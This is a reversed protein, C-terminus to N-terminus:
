GRTVYILDREEYDEATKVLSTINHRKDDDSMCYGAEIVTFDTNLVSNYKHPWGPIEWDVIVHDGSIRYNLLVAGSSEFRRKLRAPLSNEEEKRALEEKIKNRELSHFLFLTRLEPTVCKKSEISEEQDFVDKLELCLFSAYDPKLYYFRGDEWRVLRIAQFTEEPAFNLKGLMKNFGFHSKFVGFSSPVFQEHYVFAPFSLIEEQEYYPEIYSAKNGKLSVIAWGDEAEVKYRKKSYIFRKNHIPVLAKQEKDILDFNLVEIELFSFSIM